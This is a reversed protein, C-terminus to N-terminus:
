KTRVFGLYLMKRQALFVVKKSAPHYWRSRIATPIVAQLRMEKTKQTHTHVQAHWHTGALPSDATSIWRILALAENGSHVGSHTAGFRGSARRERGRM